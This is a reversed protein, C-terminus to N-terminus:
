YLLELMKLLANEILKGLHYFYHTPVFVVVDGDISPLWKEIQEAFKTVDFTSKTFVYQVPLRSVKSLCAHGFHIIADADVHSAAVQFRFFNNM